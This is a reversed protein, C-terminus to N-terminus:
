VAQVQRRGWTPTVGCEESQNKKVRHRASAMLLAKEKVAAMSFSWADTEGPGV